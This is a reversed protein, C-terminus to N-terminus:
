TKGTLWSSAHIKAEVVRSILQVFVSRSPLVMISIHIPALSSASQWVAARYYFLEGLAFM